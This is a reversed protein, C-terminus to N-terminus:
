PSCTVELTDVYLIDNKGMDPSTLFQIRTTASIYPTINFSAFQFTADNDPGAFRAIEVWPGAAGNTSIKLTAYDSVEDLNERRYEFSISASSAGSLDVDREAGEGGNNNDRIKLGREDSGNDYLVRVDSEDPGDSEGIEDWPTASWDVTGNSGNFAVNDFYDAYTKDCSGGGGSGGTPPPQNLHKIRAIEDDVLIHDCTIPDLIVDRVNLMGFSATTYERIIVGSFDIIKVKDLFSVFFNDTGEIHSVDTVSKGGPDNVDFSAQLSGDQTLIYVRDTDEGVFAIHEDYSGSESQNIYTVGVPEFVGYSAPTSITSVLVEDSNVYQLERADFDAVILHNKRLGNAVFAIGAPSTDPTPSYNQHVGNGDWLDFYGQNADVTLFAGTSTVTYGLFQYGEPLQTIGHVELSGPGAVSWDKVILSPTYDADCQQSQVACTKGCECVYQVILKPREEGENADSSRFVTETGSSVPILALGQNPYRGNMWEDVLMTIDWSFWAKTWKPISVADYQYSSYDGGAANWTQSDEYDVWTAYSGSQDKQDGEEWNKTARYVGIDGGNKFDRHYLELQASIIKVGQPIVSLDFKILGHRRENSKKSNVEIKDNTGYNKDSDKEHLYNDIGEDGPQLTVSGQEQFVTQQHKIIQEIGGSHIGTASIMVPSGSTPSIGVNYQHAGFSQAYSPYNNCSLGQLKQSAHQVGAEAAYRAQNKELSFRNASLHQSVSENLALALAALITLTFIVALLISGHQRM